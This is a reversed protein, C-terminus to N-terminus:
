PPNIRRALVRCTSLLKGSTLDFDQNIHPAVVGEVSTFHSFLTEVSQKTTNVDPHYARRRPPAGGALEDPRCLFLQRAGDLLPGGRCSLYHSRNSASPM